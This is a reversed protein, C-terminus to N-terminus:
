KAPEQNVPTKNSEAKKDRKPVDTILPKNADYSCKLVKACKYQEDNLEAYQGMIFSGDHSYNDNFEVPHM